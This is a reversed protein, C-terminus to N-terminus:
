DTIISLPADDVGDLPQVFTVQGDDSLLYQERVWSLVTTSQGQSKILPVVEVTVLSGGPAAEVSTIAAHWGKLRFQGNNLWRYQQLRHAPVPLNADTLHKAIKTHLDRADAAVGKSPKVVMPVPDIVPAEAPFLQPINKGPAVPAKSARSLRKQWRRGGAAFASAMVGAAILVIASTLLISRKTM